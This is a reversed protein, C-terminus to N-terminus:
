IELMYALGCFHVQKVAGHGIEEMIGIKDIDVCSLWPHCSMMGFLSFKGVSCRPRCRVVNLDYDDVCVFEQCLLWAVLLATIAHLFLTQSFKKFIIRYM